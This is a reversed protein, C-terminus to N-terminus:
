PVERRVLRTDLGHIRPGRELVPTEDHDGVRQSRLLEPREDRRHVVHVRKEAAAGDVLEGEDCRVLPKEGRDVVGGHERQEHVGEAPVDEHVVTVEVDMRRADLRRLPAPVLVATALVDLELRRSRAERELDRPEEGVHEVGVHASEPDNRAAMALVRERPRVIAVQARGPGLGNEHLRAGRHEKVAPQPM